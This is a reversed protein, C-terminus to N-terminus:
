FFVELSENNSYSNLRSYYLRVCLGTDACAARVRYLNCELSDSQNCVITGGACSSEWEREDTGSPM